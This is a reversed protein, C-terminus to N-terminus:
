RMLLVVPAVHSAPDALRESAYAIVGLKQYPEQQKNKLKRHQTMYVITQRNTM